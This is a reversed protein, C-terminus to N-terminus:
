DGGVTEPAEVASRYPAANLLRNLTKLDIDLADATAQKRGRLREFAWAAYQRQMERLPVVPGAFGEGAERTVAPLVLDDPGVEPGKALVAARELVHELQRVNGPWSWSMLLRLADPSCSAIRTNSHRRRAEAIFHDVLVPIDERRSRLPPMALEIVDLRYLLDARFQGKAVREGLHQHTAALVRVDVPREADAGVPRVRGRELVDLLKAQLEVPLEAVEDLFLTGGDAEVFLGDRPGAAGTFAGKAHGFLESELLNGPLAACNVTVFAKSARPGQAHLARAVLGKGTGTEGTILVPAASEAVREAVELVKQMAESRGLLTRFAYREKLSRKLATAERRVRTESLARDLFLILEELKFPKTLYHAAGQRICEVASDVAGWATMVLVPTDPSTKQVAALVTLGDAGKMRLDTLVADFRDKSLRSLADEGSFVVQADFGRLSLGDGLTEALAQDDDVVLIQPPRTTTATTM